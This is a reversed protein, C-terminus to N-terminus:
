NGVVIPKIAFAVGITTAIGFAVGITIWLPILNPNSTKLSIKKLREIEKDKMNIIAYLKREVSSSANKCLELDLKAKNKLIKEGYRKELACLKKTRDNANKIRLLAETDLLHGAFPSRQGKKLTIIKNAEALLPAFLFNIFIICTTIKKISM